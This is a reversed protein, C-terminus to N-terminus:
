FFLSTVLNQLSGKGAKKAMVHARLRHGAEKYGEGDSQEERSAVFFASDNAHSQRRNRM